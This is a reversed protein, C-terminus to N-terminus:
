ERTVSWFTQADIYANSFRKYNVKETTKQITCVDILWWIGCGGGTLLKLFGLGPQGLIFRDVGFGGLLFSFVWVTVPDRFNGNLAVLLAYNNPLDDALDRITMLDVPDFKKGNAILFAALASKTEEDAMETLENCIPQLGFVLFEDAHSPFATLLLVITIIGAYIKKNM